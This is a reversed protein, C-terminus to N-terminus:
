VISWSINNLTEAILDIKLSFFVIIKIIIKLKLAKKAITPRTKMYFNHRQQAILNDFVDVYKNIRITIVFDM